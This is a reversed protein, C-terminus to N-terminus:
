QRLLAMAQAERTQLQVLTIGLAVATEAQTKPKQGDLGFRMQLLKQDMPELRSLLEEVQARLQFYASDEVSEPEKEPEQPAQRRAVDAADSVMKAIQQVDEVSKGLEMALEKPGPNRGLRELLRRDAKQYARVSALLRQAEGSVLYHLAVARAMAQRIHWLANPLVPAELSEAASMLGMAGEQMLDLLLVGQGVYNPAEQAVLWLLGETLRNADQDTSLLEQAQEETLRSLRNLDNWYMKLPDDSSLGEPIAGARVLAAEKGLRDGLQGITYQPLHSVNLGVGRAELALAAELAEEEDTSGLIAFFREVPIETGPAILAIAKQWGPEEWELDLDLAM